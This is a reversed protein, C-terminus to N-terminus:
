RVATTLRRRREMRIAVKMRGTAAAFTKSGRRASVESSRVM